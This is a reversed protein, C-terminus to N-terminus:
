ETGSEGGGVKVRFFTTVKQGERAREEETTGVVSWWEAERYFDFISFCETFSMGLARQLKECEVWAGSVLAKITETDPEFATPQKKILSKAFDKEVRPISVVNGYENSLRDADILRM